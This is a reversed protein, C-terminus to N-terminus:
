NESTDSPWPEHRMGVGDIRCCWKAGQTWEIATKNLTCIGEAVLQLSVKGESDTDPEFVQVRLGEYLRVSDGKDDLRTDTKALLVLDEEVRENFDVLIRPLAM